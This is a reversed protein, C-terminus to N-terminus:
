LECHRNKLGIFDHPQSLLQWVTDLTRIVDVLDKQREVPLTMGQPASDILVVVHEVDQHLAPAVLVGRFLKEARQQLAQLVHRPDENRVLQLAVARRLALHQGPHLMALTAVEIIPTLIRM